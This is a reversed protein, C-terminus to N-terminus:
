HRLYGKFIIGIAVLMLTGGLLRVILHDVYQMGASRKLLDLLYLGFL